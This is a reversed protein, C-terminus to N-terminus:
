QLINGAEDIKVIIDASGPKELEIRYYYEDTHIAAPVEVYEVDDNDYTYGIYNSSITNQVASPLMAKTIDWSTEIWSYTSDFLLEKSITGEVITVETINGAEKEIEVIRANPHNTTLYAQIQAPIQSPIQGQYNDDSDSDLVAKILVGTEDFYIDIDPQGAKEVEIIYVTELGDRELRDVDDVRWTGDGYTSNEFGNKVAQPLNAFPIDGETMLWKGATDFWADSSIGNNNFEAVYYGGKIEWEVNTVGPYKQQFGAQVAQPATIGDNDDDSCSQLSLFSFAFIALLFAKIKM